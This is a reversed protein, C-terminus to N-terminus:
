KRVFSPPVVWKPNRLLECALALFVARFVEEPDAEGSAAMEAVLKGLTTKGTVSAIVAAEREPLRFM